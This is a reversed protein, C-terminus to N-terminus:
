SWLKFKRKAPTHVFTSETLAALMQAWRAMAQTFAGRTQPAIPTGANIAKTLEIYNNPVEIAVPFGIATEIEHKPVAAESGSRNAVIRLKPSLGDILTLHEIQRALDRLAGLDPTCVSAIEDSCSVLSSLWAANETESDVLVYDYRQRLYNMVASSDPADMRSQPLYADPSAIVDLGDSHRTVLGELLAADLRDASRLLEDFHYKAHKIGLYLAVHGLHNKQDILLVRKKHTRVLHVASHVALTTAGVGGKAGLIGIIKGAPTAGRSDMDSAPKFRALAALLEDAVLPKGLFEDCGARMAGLLLDANMTSSLGVLRLKLPLLQQLRAMTELAAGPDVDCDVLAVCVSADKLMAPFHPRRNGTIYEQFDGAFLAGNVREVATMANALIDAPACVSFVAQAIPKETLTAISM